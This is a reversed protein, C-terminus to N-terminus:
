RMSRREGLEEELHNVRESIENIRQDIEKIAQFLKEFNHQTAELARKIYLFNKGITEEDKVIIKLIEIFHLINDKESSQPMINITSEYASLMGKAEAMRKELDAM